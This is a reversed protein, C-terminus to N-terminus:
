LRWVVREEGCCMAGVVRELEGEFWNRGGTCIVGYLYCMDYRWSRIGGCVKRRGKRGARGGEQKSSGWQASNSGERM